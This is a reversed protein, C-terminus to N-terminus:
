RRRIWSRRPILHRLFGIIRWATSAEIEYLRQRTATLCQTRDRLAESLAHREADVTALRGEIAALEDERRAVALLVLRLENETAVLRQDREEVEGTLRRIEGDAAILRQERAAIEGGLRTMHGDAEVLQRAFADIATMAMRQRYACKVWDVIERRDLWAQDEVVHRRESTSLFEHIRSEVAFLPRPWTVDRRQTVDIVTKRWPRLLADCSVVCRPVDRTDAVADLMHRLWLLYSKAPAFGSRTELSRAVEVPNRVAIVVKVPM